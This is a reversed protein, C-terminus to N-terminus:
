YYSHDDYSNDNSGLNFAIETSLPDGPREDKRPSPTSGRTRDSTRNLTRDWSRASPTPPVRLWTVPGTLPEAWLPQVGALVPPQGWGWMWSPTGGEGGGLGPCHYGRRGSLVALSWLLVKRNNERTLRVCLQSKVDSPNMIAANCDLISRGQRFQYFWHLFFVCDLSIWSLTETVLLPPGMSRITNWDTVTFVHVEVLPHWFKKKKKNKLRNHPNHQLFCWVDVFQATHWSTTFYFLWPNWSYKSCHVSTQKWKGYYKTDTWIQYTVPNNFFMHPFSYIEHLPDERRSRLMLLNESAVKQNISITKM